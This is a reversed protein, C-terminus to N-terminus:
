MVGPNVSSTIWKNKCFKLAVAATRQQGTSGVERLARGDMRLELDHRHPGVSTAGLSEDRSASRSLAEQWYDAQALAADGHYRLTM